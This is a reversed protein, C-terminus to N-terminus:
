KYLIWSVEPINARLKIYAYFERLFDEYENVKDIIKLIEKEEIKNNIIDEYMDFYFSPYLLRGYLLRYELPTFKNYKFYQYLESWIDHDSFFSSKIYESLDRLKSDFVFCLPNNTYLLTDNCKARRHTVVLDPYEKIKYDDFTNKIYAIANEGLGIFYSLSERLLSYKKGLQNIHYEFFDIKDSWLKIWNNRTLLPDPRIFKTNANIYNIDSLTTKKQENVYVKMLIYPINDVVTIVQRDKNLVIEHVLINRRLMEINLEFLSKVEPLSRDYRFLYYKENDYLFFLYNDTQHINDPFLNYYYNILNKM